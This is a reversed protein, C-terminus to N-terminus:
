ADDDPLQYGASTLRFALDGADVGGCENAEICWDSVIRLAGELSPVAPPAVLAVGNDTSARHLLMRVTSVTIGRRDAIAQVANRVGNARLDNCEAAVSLQRVLAQHTRAAGRSAEPDLDPRLRSAQEQAEADYDKRTTM